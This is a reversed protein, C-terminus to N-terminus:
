KFPRRQTGRQDQRMQTAGEQNEECIADIIDRLIIDKVIRTSKGQKDSNKIMFISLDADNHEYFVNPIERRMALPVLMVTFTYIDPPLRKFYIRIGNTSATDQVTKNDNDLTMVEIECPDPLRGERALAEYVKVYDDKFWDAQCLRM